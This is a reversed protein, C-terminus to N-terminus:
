VTTLLLSEPQKWAAGKGFSFLSEPGVQPFSMDSLTMKWGNERMGGHPPLDWLAGVARHPALAAGLTSRSSQAARHHLTAGTARGRRCQHTELSMQDWAVERSASKQQVHPSLLQKKGRM